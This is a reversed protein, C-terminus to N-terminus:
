PRPSPEGSDAEAEAEIEALHGDLVHQGVWQAVIHPPIAGLTVGVERPEGDRTISFVIKRGPVMAAKAKKLAEANEEAYAIGDFAVVLDGPALGSAEAPSGALVRAIRPPGYSHRPEFELGVWGRGELDSKMMKVCAVMGHDCKYDGAVAPGATAALVALGYITLQIRM